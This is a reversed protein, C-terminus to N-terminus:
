QEARVGSTRVLQLYKATEARVFKELEDQTNGVAEAGLSLFKEKVDPQRLARVVETNLRAIMDKSTGVPVFVGCWNSINFGPVGAETMTPIDTAAPSRTTTTVALARLKGARVQPMAPPMGAFFLLVQGGLLDSMAPGAGKYPVHVMDIKEITKLLEGALHQANGTGSSAFTLQAPRTRALAILSTVSKVPLSPHVVLILPTISALTVPAFDKEPNYAMKSFVHQNIAIEQTAGLLLTYGDPASKAVLDAGIMGSAGARNDVMVTQKWAESMKQAILRATM